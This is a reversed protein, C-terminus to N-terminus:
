NHIGEKYRLEIDYDALRLRWHILRGSPDTVEMLWMLLSYDALVTLREVRLYNRGTIIAYVIGLM